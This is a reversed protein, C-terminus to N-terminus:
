LSELLIAYIEDADLKKCCGTTTNSTDAVRRLMERDTIGMETLTTPLGVEAIFAALADIGETALTEDSKAVGNEDAEPIGWVVTAFRAFKAPNAPAM